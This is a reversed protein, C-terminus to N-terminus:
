VYEWQSTVVRGHTLIQCTGNPLVELWKDSWSGRFSLVWTRGVSSVKHTTSRYTMFPLFSARHTETRGDIHREELKGWLVWSFCHFAHSHYADRSGNEFRLLVISFLSKLEILFYAWVTSEAGGDKCISFLKM